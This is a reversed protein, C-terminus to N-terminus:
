RSDTKLSRHVKMCKMREFIFGRMRKKSAKSLQADADANQIREWVTRICNVCIVRVSFHNDNCIAEESQM